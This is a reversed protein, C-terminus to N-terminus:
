SWGTRLWWWPFSRCWKVNGYKSGPSPMRGCELLGRKLKCHQSPLRHREATYDQVSSFSALFRRDHLRTSSNFHDVANHLCSQVDDGQVTSYFDVLTKSEMM